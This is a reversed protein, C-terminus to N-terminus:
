AARLSSEVNKLSNIFYTNRWEDPLMHGPLLMGSEDKYRVDLKGGEVRVWPQSGNRTQMIYANHELLLRVAEDYAGNRFASAISLFRQAAEETGFAAAITTREAEIADPDLHRLATGWARKIERAVADTTQRDRTLIFAFANAMPVLLKELKGIATLLAALREGEPHRSAKTAVHHLDAMGFDPGRPLQALLDALVAQRGQTSDQDGGDVLHHHYFSREAANVHEQLVEAVAHLLATDRGEVYLDRHERRLVDLIRRDAKGSKSLLHIYQREVFERASKTLIPEDQGLLGSSRAPVSFLGWLGYTKQDGLIQLAPDPGITVKNGKLLRLVVRDRGRFDDDRNVHLRAYGALQEFTLFLDLTSQKGSGEVEQVLQAFYYGLLLTTFGRVSNSVTTLNGIILRGYRSWLPVLGLPDRSGKIAARSDIDTLFPM